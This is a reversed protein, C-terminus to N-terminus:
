SYLIKRLIPELVDAMRLFGIDNPHCDDVTCLDRESTGFFTEGDVFYVNQDGEAVATEYNRRIVARCEIANQLEREFDPCTVMVIPLDPQAKRIIRYFPMHTKELHAANPANHDYDMVFMSMPLSAIYEAMNAEGMGNGSFGLNVQAADLRRCLITSYCSGVKTACGGQTISSGYFLIPKEIRPTRGPLVQADPAFGLLLEKLGNYLPLYLAYHHMGGPLPFYSSQQLKCGLGANMAPILNKVHFIGEDSEEFLQLGSQGSATFHPMNTPDTLTWLVALHDADTSFRVCAGALHSALAQVGESCEPLFELPLRSYVGQDNPALGWISFPAERPDLFQIGAPVSEPLKFNPDIETISKM